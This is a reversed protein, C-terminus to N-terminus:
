RSLGPSLFSCLSKFSLRPCCIRAKPSEVVDQSDKNLVTKDLMHM